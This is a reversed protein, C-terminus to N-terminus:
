VRPPHFLPEGDVQPSVTMGGCPFSGGAPPADLCPGVAAVMVKLACCPLNCHECGDGCCENSPHGHDAGADDTLLGEDTGHEACSALDPHPTMDCPSPLSAPLYAPVLALILLLTYGRIKTM